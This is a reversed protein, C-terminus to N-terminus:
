FSYTLGAITNFGKVSYNYYRQYKKGLINNAEVFASFVDSFRYDVKLSVDTINQMNIVQKTVFNEARLGSIYYINANFYIKKQINYTGLLTTTFSPRQLAQGVDQSINYSYSNVLAGIRFRESQEYSLEANFNVISSSGRAYLIDFKSADNIYNNFFSLNKYSAYSIQAKYNLKQGLNGKLGAYFEITKNTHLLLVNNKLYPNQAVFSRYTNKQMEGDVGAFAIVTKDVLKYDLNISPYVHFKPTGPDNTYAANLGAKVTYNEAKMVFKPKVQYFDRNISSSDTKYTTLSLMSNSEISKNEDIKYSSANTVLVESESVGWNNSINYYGANANYKFTASQNANELGITANYTNYLLKLTDKNVDAVNNYGYYNYRNRYYGANGRLIVNNTYYRVYGDASTNSVGSNSKDVPGHASSLQKAHLGYSLKDSRKNNLFADLYATGYNGAGAKIYNGYLKTLASPKLTLIQLKSDLKPIKLGVDKTAYQQAKYTPKPPQYTVKEFNRNATPLEIKANKTIQFNKRLDNEDDQAFSALSSFVVVILLISNLAFNRM